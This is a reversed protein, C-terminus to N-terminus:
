SPTTQSWGQLQLANSKVNPHVRGSAAREQMDDVEGNGNM